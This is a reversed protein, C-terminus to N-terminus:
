KSPIYKKIDIDPAMFLTPDGGNILIDRVLTSSIYSFEQSAPIFVPVIDPAMKKNAQAIIAEFEFDTTTRLGRVIFSANYKHCIDITLGTFTCVEIDAGNNLIGAISDKIIEIRKEPTLFGKKTCNYGVAIVVKDFIKLASTLVDLHGATFPDFSGPFIAIKM